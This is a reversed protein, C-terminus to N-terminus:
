YINASYIFSYFLCGEPFCWQQSNVLNSSVRVYRAEQASACPLFFDWDKREPHEWLCIVEMGQVKNDEEDTHNPNSRTSNEVGGVGKKSM